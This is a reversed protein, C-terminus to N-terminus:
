SQSFVLGLDLDLGPPDLRCFGTTPTAISGSVTRRHHAVTRHVPDLILYHHVSALQFYGKLKLDLDRASTSPSLVEVVIVPNPVEISEGPLEPGCYVLADPEFATYDDIRVTAGDPEAHCALGAARVASQLAEFMGAKIRRHHARQPSMGVPVGDILEWRGRRGDAWLVFEGVTMMKRLPANM